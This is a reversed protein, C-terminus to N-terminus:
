RLMEWEIDREENRPRKTKGRVVVVVTGVLPLMAVRLTRFVFTMEEGEIV